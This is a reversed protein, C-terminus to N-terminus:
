DRRLVRTVGAILATALLWGAAILAYAVWRTAETPAFADRLGFASIPLLLDLTYMVADFSRGPETPQPPSATFVLTGTLLLLMLWGLARWPKYGYGVTADLVHGIVRAAPALEKRNVRQKGLLIQRAETDAGLRRFHAALQEYPQPRFGSRERRLWALRAKPELHSSDLAEYTFGDLAVCEPWADLSDRLVTCRLHRLDALGRIRQATRLNLDSVTANTLALACTDGDLVAGAFNLEGDIRAGDLHIEGDGRFGDGCRMRGFVQMNAGMLAVGGPNSLHAGDMFLGGHVRAGVIRVIGEVRLAQPVSGSHNALVASEVVMGGAFIAFDGPNIVSAGRLDLEGTIMARLLILRGRVTSRCFSLDGDVRMLRGSFGPLECNDFKVRRTRADTFEPAQEFRCETLRLPVEVTASGLDLRGTIEAGTLDIAPAGGAEPPRVGRLLAGLLAARVTREPADRLDVPTGDPFATWLAKEADNVPTLTM